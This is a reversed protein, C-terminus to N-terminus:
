SRERVNFRVMEVLGSLLLAAPWLNQMRDLSLWQLCVGGTLFLGTLLLVVPAAVEEFESTKRKRPAAGAASAKSAKPLFHQM